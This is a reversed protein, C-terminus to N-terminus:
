ANSGSGLRFSGNCDSNLISLRPKGLQILKDRLILIGEGTNQKLFVM